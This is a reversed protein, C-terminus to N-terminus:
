QYGNLKLASDNLYCFTNVLELTKINDCDVQLLMPSMVVISLCKARSVAVNLRNKSYLFEIGRSVEKGDSSTM